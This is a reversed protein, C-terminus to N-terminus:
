KCNLPQEVQVKVDLEMKVPIGFKALRLMTMYDDYSASINLFNEPDTAKFGGGGQVFITRDHNCNSTSLM